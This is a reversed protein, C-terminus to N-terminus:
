QESKRWCIEEMLDRLERLRDLAEQSEDQGALDRERLRTALRNVQELADLLDDGGVCWERIARNYAQRSNTNAPLNLLQKLERLGM